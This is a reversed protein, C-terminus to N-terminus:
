CFGTKFLALPREGHLSLHNKMKKWVMRGLGQGARHQAHSTFLGARYQAHSIFPGARVTRGLLALKRTQCKFARGLALAVWLGPGVVVLNVQHETM